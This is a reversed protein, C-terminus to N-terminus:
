ELVMIYPYIPQQGDLLIIETNPYEAQLAETLAEAREKTTDAGRLILAVDYHGMSLKAALLKATSDADGDDVYIKGDTFGIYDAERIEVGDLTTDRTAKSVFGTTVGECNERAEEEVEEHTPLTTDMMSLVAYGQGVDRTPIVHIPKKDYLKGAQEATMIINKNNPLVFIEDCNIRDFASVFSEAPPNMSQGGQVVEDAGLERFLKVIGPGNAVTVFGYKKHKVVKGPTHGTLETENHQLSMNEVKLKLFEGYQRVHSLVQGPDMVHVHVKVVTGERFCVVSDGVENLWDCLETVDFTDLDVKKRQLRLLFETCYGWTLESDETFADFDIAEQQAGPRGSGAEIKEGELAKQMGEAIYVFGAGGSDVVGAEKLVQLLEPTRKLSERLECVFHGFYNEFTTGEEIRENAYHVADRYVSLITGDVPKSVAGYAEAIADELAKGFTGVNASKADSLSKAIGSFIRSLIVGSNGRAGMLMGNAIKKSVDSLLDEEADGVAHNGSDITLYMNDGTDGDPVPFVNLDNVEERNKNLNAAGNRVMEAYLKGDLVLTNM